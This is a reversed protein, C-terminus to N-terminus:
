GPRAISGKRGAAHTSGTEKKNKIATSNYQGPPCRSSTTRADPLTTTAISGTASPHLAVVLFNTVIRNEQVLCVALSPSTAGRVLRGFQDLVCLGLVCAPLCATYPGSRDM